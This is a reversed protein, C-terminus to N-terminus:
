VLLAQPSYMNWFCGTCQRCWETDVICSILAEHINLQLGFLHPFAAIKTVVFCGSIWSPCVMTKRTMVSSQCLRSSLIIRMWQDPCEIWCYAFAFSNPTMNWWWTVHILWIFLMILDVWPVRQTRQFNRLIVGVFILFVNALAKISDFIM